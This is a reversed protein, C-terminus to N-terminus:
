DQGGAGERAGRQLPRVRLHPWLVLQGRVTQVPGLRGGDGRYRRRNGRHLSGDQERSRRRGRRRRHQYWTWSRRSAFRSLAIAVLWRKQVAHEIKGLGMLHEHRIEADTIERAGPDDILWHPVRHLGLLERLFALTMTPEDPLQRANARRLAGCVCGDCVSREGAFTMRALLERRDCVACFGVLDMPCLNEVSLALKSLHAHIAPVFRCASACASLTDCAGMCLADRMILWRRRLGSVQAEDEPTEFEPDRGRALMDEVHNAQEILGPYAAKLRHTTRILIEAADLVTVPHMWRFM